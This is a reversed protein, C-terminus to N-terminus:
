DNLASVNIACAGTEINLPEKFGRYKPYILYLGGQGELYKEGYAFLQYMDSQSLNYKDKITNLSADLLKWKTDMVAVVRTNDYVVV